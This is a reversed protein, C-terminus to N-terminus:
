QHRVRIRADVAKCTEETSGAMFPNVDMELIQPHNTILASLRQLSEQLRDIRSSAEGRVGELLPYGRISEIMTKADLDTIPALRMFTDNLVEVYKGGMGFVLLDGYADDHRMGMFVEREGAVMEQILFGTFEAEPDLRALESRMERVAETLEVEDKLDVRVGKVEAKHVIGKGALKAVVPYGIRCAADRAEAETTVFAWTATPIGYHELAQMVRDPPLYGGGDAFSADLLAEVAPVDAEVELITGEERMRRRAYTYLANLAKAAAEPFIFIPPLDSVRDRITSHWDLTALIVCVVPKPITRSREQIIRVVDFPDIMLPPVFIAMIADVGPDRAMVDLALGYHEARAGSIMDVPNRLSAEPPLFRALADMSEQGLTAMELGVGIVADTAMIAPGGANTVVGVKPGQPLPCGRLAQLVDFLDEMSAVRLVGAQETLATVAQDPGALAGTHSSAAIAGAETRGAKVLVIPKKRTIKRALEKFKRPDGVSELYLAIIETRDDRALYDVIETAHIDAKNGLSVFASLGLGLQKSLNIIAVGLAGSQSIIGIHGPSPLEPAFTANLRVEPAMNIVGMCNPGVMRMGHERVVAALQEELRAGDGQIEKFGATIVVLAKVGKRGCEGVVDLIFRKPVCIVALDVPDPIDIVRGYCKISHITEAKLNVPFLKGNFDGSVINHVLYWGISGRQTSAGIVAISRPKFIADLNVSM